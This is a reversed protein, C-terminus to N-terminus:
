TLLHAITVMVADIADTTQLMSQNSYCHPKTRTPVGFRQNGNNVALVVRM